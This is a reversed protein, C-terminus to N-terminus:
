KSNGKVGHKKSMHVGIVQNIRSASQTFEDGCVECARTIREEDVDLTPQGDDDGGGAGLVEARQDPFQAWYDTLNLEHKQRTHSGFSGSNKLKAGCLRCEIKNVTAEATRPRGAPAAAPDVEGDKLIDLLPNLVEKEHRECMAIRRAKWGGYTLTHERGEERVEEALCPDCWIYTVLDRAM